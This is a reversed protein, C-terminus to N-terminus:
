MFKKITNNLITMHRSLQKKIEPSALVESAELAYSYFNFNGIHTFNRILKKRFLLWGKLKSNTIANKIAYKMGRYYRSITSSRILITQGDFEFGLYQLRKAEGQLNTCTIRGISNDKTFVLVETKEKQISLSISKLIQIVSAKVIQFKGIPCIIAIDDSYRRYFGNHEKTIAFVEQDFPMMYMNSLIASIPTGQPIGIREIMKGTKKPYLVIKKTKLLKRFEQPTCLRNTNKIGQEKLVKLLDEKELYTYRTVSKFIKLHDAPLEEVGLVSAWIQYLLSHYLSDFFCEIDLAIVICNGRKKIEDFIEKAFHFNKKGLARYATVCNTLPVNKLLEEYKIGLLTAYWSHISADAHSGYYLDRDKSGIKRTGDQQKKYRPTSKKFHIFPYFSHQIVESPDSVRKYSTSPSVKWDFHRYTRKRTSSIISFVKTEKEIWQKYLEEDNM